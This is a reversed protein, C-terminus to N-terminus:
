SRMWREFRTPMPMRGSCNLVGAVAGGREAEGAFLDVVDDAEGSSRSLPKLPPRSTVTFAFRGVARRLLEARRDADIRRLLDEVVLM